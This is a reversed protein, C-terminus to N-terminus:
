AGHSGSRQEAGRTLLARRVSLGRWRPEPESTVGSLYRGIQEAAIEAVAPAFKFGVGSMGTAVYLARTDDVFGLVPRSDASYCDFGPLIDLVRAKAQPRLHSIRQCADLMHRADPGALEEPLSARDRPECGSQVIHGSLAIAYSAMPADIVPLSWDQDTLVRALPIARTQLDLQPLLGTTWAGCALVLLRCRLREGTLSLCASGDAQWDIDQVQCHELVLGQQRVLGCLRATIQRVDATCARAEFLDARDARAKYPGYGQVRHMPYDASAYREIAMDLALQQELGARYLVGSQRLAGAYASTFVPGAMAKLARATMEMLLPDRDYLRILGGSYASAGRSAPSGQDILAVDLGQSALQAALSAGTIGAGIVAVQFDISM